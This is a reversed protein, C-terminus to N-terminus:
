NNGSHDIDLSYVPKNNDIVGTQPNMELAARYNFHEPTNVDVELNYFAGDGTFSSKPRIDRVWSDEKAPIFEDFTKVYKFWGTQKTWFRVFEVYHDWRDPVQQNPALEAIHFLLWHYVHEWSDHAGSSGFNMRFEEEPFRKGPNKLTDRYYKEMEEVLLKFSVYDKEYDLDIPDVSMPHRQYPEDVKITLDISVAQMLWYTKANRKEETSLLLSTISKKDTINAGIHIVCRLMGAAAKNPCQYPKFRPKGRFSGIQRMETHCCQFDSEMGKRIKELPLAHHQRTEELSKLISEADTSEVVNQLSPRAINHLTPRFLAEVQLHAKLEQDLFLAADGSRLLKNQNTRDFYDYLKGIEPDNVRFLIPDLHTEIAEITMIPFLEVSTSSPSNVDKEHEEVSQLLKAVSIRYHQEVEPKQLKQVQVKNIGKNVQLLRQRCQPDALIWPHRYGLKDPIRHM